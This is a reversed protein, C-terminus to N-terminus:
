PTSSTHLLYYMKLALIHNPRNKVLVDLSLYATKTLLKLVLGYVTNRLYLLIFFCIFILALM